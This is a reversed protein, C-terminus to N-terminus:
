AGDRTCDLDGIKLLVDGDRIGVNYGPGDKIVHAVLDDSQLDHPVFVASLHNYEYPLPPTKPRLYAIGRRGDIVIDM